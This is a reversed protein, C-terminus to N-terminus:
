SGLRGDFSIAFKLDPISAKAEDYMQKLKGDWLSYEKLFEIAEQDFLQTPDVGPFRFSMFIQGSPLTKFPGNKLGSGGIGIGATLGGLGKSKMMQTFKAQTAALVPNANKPAKAVPQGANANGPAQPNSSSSALPTSNQQQPVKKGVVFPPDKQIQFKASKKFFHEPDFLITVGDKSQNFSYMYLAVLNKLWQSTSSSNLQAVLNVTGPIKFRMIVPHPGFTMAIIIIGDSTIAFFKLRKIFSDAGEANWVPNKYFVQTDAPIQEYFVTALSAWQGEIAKKFLDLSANQSYFICSKTGKIQANKIKDGSYDDVQFTSSGFKISIGAKPEEAAQVEPEVEAQTSTKPQEDQQQPIKSKKKTLIKEPDCGCGLYLVGTKEDEYFGVTNCTKGGAQIQFEIQSLDNAVGKIALIDNKLDAPTCIGSDTSQLIAKTEGEKWIFEKKSAYVQGDSTIIMVQKCKKKATLIIDFGKLDLPESSFEEKLLKIAQIAAEKKELLFDIFTKM